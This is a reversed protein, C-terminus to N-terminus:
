FKITISILFFINLINSDLHVIRQMPLIMVMLSIFGSLILKRKLQALNNHHRAEDRQMSLDRSEVQAPYLRYGVQELATQLFEFDTLAPQYDIWVQEAALNVKADHVGELALLKKEVRAVCSACTMGEVSFTDHRSPVQFGLKEIAPSFQSASIKTSDFEISAVEAAFNVQVSSVGGLEGVKKEIRASCSACSMGKVPLSINQINPPNHESM